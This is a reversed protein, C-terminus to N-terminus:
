AAATKNPLLLLSACSDYCQCCVCCRACNVTLSERSKSRTGWLSCLWCAHAHQLPTQFLPVGIGSDTLELSTVRSMRNRVPCTLSVPQPVTQNSYSNAYLYHHQLLIASASAATDTLSFFHYLHPTSVVYEPTPNSHLHSRLAGQQQLQQLKYIWHQSTGSVPRGPLYLTSCASTKGLHLHLVEALMDAVQTDHKQPNSFSATQLM